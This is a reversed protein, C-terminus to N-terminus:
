GSLPEVSRRRGAVQLRSPGNSKMWGADAVSEAGPLEHGIANALVRTEIRERLEFATLPLLWCMWNALSRGVPRDNRHRIGARGDAQACRGLMAFSLMAVDLPPSRCVTSDGGGKDRTRRLDGDGHGDGGARGGAVPGAAAHYAMVFGSPTVLVSVCGAQLRGLYRHWKPFRSFSREGILILGLILSIPGSLIHTYFAWEYVGWFHGERGRLFDSAFNAPFYDPYNSVISATVKLILM